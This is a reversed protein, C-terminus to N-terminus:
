YMTLSSRQLLVYRGVGSTCGTIFYHKGSLDKDGLVDEATAKASFGFTGIKAGM